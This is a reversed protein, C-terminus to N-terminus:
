DGKVGLLDAIESKTLSRDGNKNHKEFTKMAAEKDTENALYEDM